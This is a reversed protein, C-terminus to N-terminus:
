GEEAGRGEETGGKREARRGGREATRGGRQEGGQARGKRPEEERMPEARRGRGEKAGEGGQSQELRNLFVTWQPIRGFALGNLFARAM